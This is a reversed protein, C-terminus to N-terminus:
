VEDFLPQLEAPQWPGGPLVTFDLDQSHRHTDAYCKKLAMGGKLVWTKSLIPHQAIGWLLWGLVYDKETIHDELKWHAATKQIDTQTIM